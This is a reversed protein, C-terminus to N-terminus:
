ILKLSKKIADIREQLEASQQEYHERGKLKENVGFYFKIKPETGSPRMSVKSGDELFFQLVNSEPLNIPHIVGSQLNTSKQLKYDHIELVRSQNVTKPPNSRFQEMMQQIEEAGARGQKVVNILDERYLGFREYVDMLLDYVTKGYDKAWAAMEAILMAAMVGDKDRVEQGAMYGYSEEAGIIFEKEGERQKVIDAIWKFGTLTKEMDVEFYRAIESLLETTVITTVVYKSHDLKGEEQWRTLLYYFLLSATQNGNLLEMEGDPNRVALGLRDGDPDTAMVLEANVEEAKKLALELAEHNEPNPSQVTPFNGDVIDQEQVSHLNSFGMSALAEPVLKVATGHIPTFVMPIDHNRKVADPSMTVKSIEEIYKKDFKKDVLEINDWSGNFQVESVDSIARAANVVNSDHPPVLQGGDEWYAKYGNYEKPNHSATINVGAQCGFHRIAFSLEPTPRLDDFLYVKMGNASFIKAVTEAFLRSNNRCDHIIAVKIEEKDVFNIKLYNCLGQTAMGVTYINMRNTGVGMIGRLGGTGFELDKYFADTLEEHDNDMLYKVQSKTDEDFKGELWTQAKTKVEAPIEM